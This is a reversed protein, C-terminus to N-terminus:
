KKKKKKFDDNKVIVEEEKKEPLRVPKSEDFPAECVWCANELDSLANACKSCYFTNCEPCLFINYRALKGKCVLCIKKEKSISVEEETVKQPKAFMGLIDVQDDYKEIKEKEHSKIDKIILYQLLIIVVLFWNVAMLYLLPFGVILFSIEFVIIIVINFISIFDWYRSIHSFRELNSSTVFISMIAGIIYLLPSFILPIINLEKIQWYSIIEAIGFFVASLLLCAGIAKFELKSARTFFFFLFIIVSSSYIFAVAVVTNYIESDVPLFILLIVLFIQIISVLGKTRRINVEFAIFILIFQIEYIIESLKYFISYESSVKDYDGYFTFYRFTGSIFFDSLYEFFRSIALCIFFFSFGYFLIKDKIIEKQKAKRFYLISCIVLLSIAIGWLLRDIPDWIMVETM